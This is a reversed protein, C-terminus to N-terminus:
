EFLLRARCLLKTTCSQPITVSFIEDFVGGKGSGGHSSMESVQPLSSISTKRRTEAVGIASIGPVKRAITTAKLQM